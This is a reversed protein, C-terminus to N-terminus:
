QGVRLEQRLEDVQRGGNADGGDDAVRVDGCQDCTLRKNTIENM